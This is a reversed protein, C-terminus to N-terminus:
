AHAGPRLRGIRAHGGCRSCKGCIGGGCYVAVIEVPGAQCATCHAYFVLPSGKETVVADANKKAM